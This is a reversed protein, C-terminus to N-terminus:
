TVPANRDRRANLDGAPARNVPPAAAGTRGRDGLGGGARRRPGGLAPRQGPRRDAPGPRPTGAARRSHDVEEASRGIMTRRAHAAEAPPVGPDPFGAVAEVADVEDIDDVDDADDTDDVDDTDDADASGNM